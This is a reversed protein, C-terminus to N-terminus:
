AENKQEILLPTKPLNYEQKAVEADLALRGLSIIDKAIGSVSKSRAIESTLKEGKLNEDSLRELQAFLHNNLDTLKNKM